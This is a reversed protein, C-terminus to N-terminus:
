EAQVVAKWVRADRVLAQEVRGPRPGKTFVGGEMPSRDVIALGVPPVPVSGAGMSRHHLVVPPRLVQFYHHSSKTPVILSYNEVPM